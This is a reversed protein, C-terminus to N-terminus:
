VGSAVSALSSKASYEAQSGAGEQNQVANKAQIASSHALSTLTAGNQDSYGGGFSSISNVSGFVHTAAISQDAPKLSVFDKSPLYGGFAGLVAFM